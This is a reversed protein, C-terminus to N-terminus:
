EKGGKQSLLEHAARLLGGPRNVITLDAFNDASASRASVFIVPTSSGHDRILRILRHREQEPVSHCLVVLDFDAARFRQIAEDVSSASEVSYGASRLVLSRTELLAADHGVNLVFVASVGSRTM